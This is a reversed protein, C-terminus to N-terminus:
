MSRAIHGQPKVKAELNFFITISVQKTLRKRKKKLVARSLFLDGLLTILIIELSTNTVDRWCTM